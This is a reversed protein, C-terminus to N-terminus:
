KRGLIDINIEFMNAERINDVMITEDVAVREFYSKIQYYSYSTERALKNIIEDTM